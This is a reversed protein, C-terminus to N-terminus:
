FSFINEGSRRTRRWSGPGEKKSASSSGTKNYYNSTIDHLPDAGDRSSAVKNRVGDPAAAAGLRALIVRAMASRQACPGLGRWSMM